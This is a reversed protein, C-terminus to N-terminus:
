QIACFKSQPFYQRILTLSIKILLVNVFALTNMKDDHQYDHKSMCAVKNAIAIYMDYLYAALFDKIGTHVHMTISIFM